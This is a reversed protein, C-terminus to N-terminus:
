PPCPVINGDQNKCQILSAQLFLLNLPQPLPSQTLITLTSHLALSPVVWRLRHSHRQLADHSVSPIASDDDVSGVPYSDSM